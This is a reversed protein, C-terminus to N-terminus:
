HAAESTPGVIVFDKLKIDGTARASKDDASLMIWGLGENLHEGVVYRGRVGTDVHTAEFVVKRGYKLRADNIFDYDTMDRKSREEALYREIIEKNEPSM